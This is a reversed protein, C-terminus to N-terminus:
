GKILLAVMSFELKPPVDRVVLFKSAFSLQWSRDPLKNVRFKM